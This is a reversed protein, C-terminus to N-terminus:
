YQPLTVLQISSKFEDLSASSVCSEPLMNWFVVSRPFFSHQYVNLKAQYPIFKFSHSGRTSRVPAYTPHYNEPIAILGNVMKYVLTVDVWFRRQQLSPWQLKNLIETVSTPNSHSYPQNTVWRAANRQVRELYKIQTKQHPNWITSAYELKSRVLSQYAKEKVKMPCNRLNRKLFGLISSARNSIIDIHTNFKLTDSFEVGLYPLHHVIERSEGKM